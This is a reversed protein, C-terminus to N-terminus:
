RLAHRPEMQAQGAPTTSWEDLEAEWNRKEEAATALRSNMMLMMMMMIIMMM